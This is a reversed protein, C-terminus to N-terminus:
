HGGTVFTEFLQERLNTQCAIMMMRAPQQDAPTTGTDPAHSARIVSAQLECPTAFMVMQNGHTAGTWEIEPVVIVCVIPAYVEGGQDM